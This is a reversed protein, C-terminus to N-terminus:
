MGKYSCPVAWAALVQPFSGSSTLKLQSHATRLSGVLRLWPGLVQCRQVRHAAEPQARARLVTGDRAGASARHALGAGAQPATGACGRGARPRCHREAAM